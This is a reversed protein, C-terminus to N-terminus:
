AQLEKVKNDSQVFKLGGLIM